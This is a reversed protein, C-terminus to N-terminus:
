PVDRLAQAPNTRGARVAPLLAALIGVSMLTAGAVAFSALDTPMIGYLFGSVLRTAAVSALSGVGVGIVVPALGFKLVEHGVMRPTAGLAMRVAFEARRRAVAYSVVGFVGIAGIALALAAFVSFFFRLRLPAAFATEVADQMTQTRAITLRSDTESIARRVVPMIIAPPANSKVVLVVAAQASGSQAFPVWLAFPPQTTLGTLKTERMVGVITRSVVTGSWSDGVHIGLAREVPEGWMAAAFSESVVAVPMSGEVDTSDIGRGAIMHMGLTRFFAPTATRYLSTPKRAGTLEPHGEIGLAAQYGLDRVPLRNTLGAATVGPLASIRQVLKAFLEGRTSREVGTGAFVGYTTVGHADFGPDIQRIHEVSRILLTAGVVLVLAFAVQFGIIAGHIRRAGRHLGPESRERAIASGTGRVANRIPFASVILAISLALALATAFTVSGITAVSDLGGTLPLRAVILRFAVVALVTGVVAACLALVFSEVLIQRALRWGSAGLARRVAMESSRDTNRVLVLAAANASAILLLLGVAALLLLLPERTKGIVYAHVPIAVANRSHDWAAPYKFRQGLAASLRRMEASVAGDSAARRVRAVITLYGNQYERSGPGLQLPRWARLDPSPFFFGRPMVGIITSPKGDLLIQRGIVGRDGGLDQQWMGYSVVVVPAAGPRDDAADFVRGLMPRVGLTAFLTPSSVVVPLVSAAGTSRPAPSYSDGDTSFASLQEFVRLRDRLFDYEEDTWSYDQWFVRVRVEDSYPLSRLLLGNVVTVLAVSAGIGLGLAALVISTFGARRRMQRLALRADAAVEGLGALSWRLM